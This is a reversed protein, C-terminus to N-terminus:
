TFHSPPSSAPPFIIFEGGADWFNYSWSAATAATPVLHVCMKNRERLLSLAITATATFTRVNVNQVVSLNEGRKGRMRTNNPPLLLPHVFFNSAPASIVIRIYQQTCHGHPETHERERGEQVIGRPGTDGRHCLFCHSLTRESQSVAWDARFDRKESCREGEVREGRSASASRRSRCVSSCGM